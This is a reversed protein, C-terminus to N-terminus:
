VKEYYGENERMWQRIVKEADSKTQYLLTAGGAKVWLGGLFKEIKWMQYHQDWVARVKVKAKTGMTLLKTNNM